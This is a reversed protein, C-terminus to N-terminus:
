CKCVEFVDRLPTASFKSAVGMDWTRAKQLTAEPATALVTKVIDSGVEIKPTGM